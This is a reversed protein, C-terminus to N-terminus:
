NGGVIFDMEVGVAFVKDGADVVGHEEVLTRLTKRSLHFTTPTGAIPVGGVPLFFLPGGGIRFGDGEDLAM